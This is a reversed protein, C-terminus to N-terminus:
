PGASRILVATVGHDKMWAADPVEGAAAIGAADNIIHDGRGVIARKPYLTYNARFYFESMWLGQRFSTPDFNTFHIEINGGKSLSQFEEDASQMAQLMPAESSTGAQWQRLPTGPELNFFLIHLTAVLFCLTVAASGLTGRRHRM